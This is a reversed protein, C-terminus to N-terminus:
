GVMKEMVDIKLQACVESRKKHYDLDRLKEKFRANDTELRDM